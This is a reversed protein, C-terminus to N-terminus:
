LRGALQKTLEKIERHLQFYKAKESQDSWATGSATDSAFKKRIGDAISQKARIVTNIDTPTPPRSTGNGNSGPRDDYSCQRQWAAALHNLWRGISRGQRDVFRAGVAENWVQAVFEPPCLKPPQGQRQFVIPRGMAKESEVQAQAEAATKPFGVPPEVEFEIRGGGGGEKSAEEEEEEEKLTPEVRSHLTSKYEEYLGHEKLKQIIKKHPICTESLQGCQFAIFGKIWWRGRGIDQIREKFVELVATTDLASGIFFEAAELDVKWVGTNDCRDCIFEWFVKHEPKLKRFWSDSWKETDTFRKM